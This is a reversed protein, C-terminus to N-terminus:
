VSIIVLILPGQDLIAIAQSISRSDGSARIHNLFKKNGSQGVGYLHSVDYLSNATSRSKWLIGTSTTFIGVEKTPMKV